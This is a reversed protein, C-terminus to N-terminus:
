LEGKQCRTLIADVRRRTRARDRVSSELVTLFRRRRLFVDEAIPREFLRQRERVCAHLWLREVRAIEIEGLAIRLQDDARGIASM